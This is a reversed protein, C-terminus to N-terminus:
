KATSRGGLKQLHDSIAIASCPSQRGFCMSKVIVVALVVLPAFIMINMTRDGM